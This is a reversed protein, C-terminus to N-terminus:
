LKNNISLKCHDKHIFNLTNCIAWGAQTLTGMVQNKGIASSITENRNGFQYGGKQLFYNLAFSLTVNGMQDIVIAISKLYKGIKNYAILANNRIFVTTVTVIISSPILIFGLILAIVLLLISNFFDKM